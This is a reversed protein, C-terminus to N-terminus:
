KQYLYSFDNHFVINDELILVTEYGNKSAM